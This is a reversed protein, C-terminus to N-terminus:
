SRPASCAPGRVRPWTRALFDLVFDQGQRYRATISRQGLMVDTHADGRPIAGIERPLGDHGGAKEGRDGCWGRARAM